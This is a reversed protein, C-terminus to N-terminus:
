REQLSKLSDIQIQLRQIQSKSSTLLKSLQRNEAALSENLNMSEDLEEKMQSIQRMLSEIEDQQKELTEVMEEQKKLMELIDTLTQIDQM